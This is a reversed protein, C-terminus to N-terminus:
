ILIYIYIYTHTYIYIYIDYLMIYCLMIDGIYVKTINYVQGLCLDHLLVAQGRDHTQQPAREPGGPMIIEGSNSNNNNSYWINNSNNYVIYVYIYIYIVTKAKKAGRRM